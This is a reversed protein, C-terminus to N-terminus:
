KKKVFGYMKCGCKECTGKIAPVNNKSMVNKANKVGRFERCKVCYLKQAAGGGSKKAKGKKAM